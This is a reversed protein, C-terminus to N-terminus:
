STVVDDGPASVDDGPRHYGLKHYPTVYKRDEDETWRPYDPNDDFFPLKSGVEDYETLWQDEPLHRRKCWTCRIRTNEPVPSGCLCWFSKTEEEDGELVTHEDFYDRTFKREEVICRTCIWRTYRDCDCLENLFKGSLENEMKTDCEPCLCMINEAQHPSNLHPRRDPYWPTPAARPYFRCEECINIGCKICPLAGAEDCKANYLFVEIEEDATFGPNITWMGARKWDNRYPSKFEQRLALGRGDCLSLRQLKKFLTSSGLICSHHYHNTLALHYLDVSSLWSALTPLIAYSSILDTIGQSPFPGASTGIAKQDAM